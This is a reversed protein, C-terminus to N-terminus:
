SDEETGQGSPLRLNDPLVELKKQVEVVGQNLEREAELGIRTIIDGSLKHTVEQKSVYEGLLEMVMKQANTNGKIASKFLAEAVEKLNRRFYEKPDFSGGSGIPRGRKKEKVKELTKEYKGDAERRIWQEVTNLTVGAWAALDGKTEIEYDLGREIPSMAWIELVKERLGDAM